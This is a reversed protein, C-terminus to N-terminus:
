KTELVWQKKNSASQTNVIRPQQSTRLCCGMISKLKQMPHIIAMRWYVPYRAGKLPIHLESLNKLCFPLM